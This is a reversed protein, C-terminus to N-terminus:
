FSAPLELRLGDYSTIIGRPRFIGELDEHLLGTNHSFHTVVIRGEEKLIGQEGFLRQVELVTEVSMHNAHRPNGTLGMTCDLIALDLQVGSLCSWTEPPFWGTDHGYLLRRGNKELLYLLCTEMPDHDAPLPTAIYDGMRVPVFPKVRHLQLRDGLFHAAAQKAQRIVLDNGYVDLPHDLGHAIGTRRCELDYPNFHDSHSHTVLMHRIAGMDISERLAQMYWDPCLDFKLIGDVIVSSRTRINKGGLARARTCAQCRCFANPFGEAAATGLFHIDVDVQGEM